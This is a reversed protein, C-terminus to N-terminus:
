TWKESGERGGCASGLVLICLLAVVFARIWRSAWTRASSALRGTVTRKRACPPLGLNDFRQLLQYSSPAVGCANQAEAWLVVRWERLVSQAVEMAEVAFLSPDVMQNLDGSLFTDEVIRHLEAATLRPWRHLNGITRLYIRAPTFDFETQTYLILLVSQELGSLTWVASEKRVANCQERIQQKKEILRQEIERFREDM